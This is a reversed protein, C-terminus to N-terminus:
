NSKGLGLISSLIGCAERNIFNRRITEVVVTGRNWDGVGIGENTCGGVIEISVNSNVGVTLRCNGYSCNVPGHACWNLVGFVSAWSFVDGKTVSFGGGFRLIYQSTKFTMVPKSLTDKVM